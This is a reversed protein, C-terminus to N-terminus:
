CGRGGRTHDPRRGQGGRPRRKQRDMSSWAHPVNNNARAFMGRSEFLAAEFRNSPRRYLDLFGTRRRSRDEHQIIARRLQKELVVADRRWSWVHRINPADLGEAEYEVLLEETEFSTDPLDSICAHLNHLTYESRLTPYSPSELTERWTKLSTEDMEVNCAPALAGLEETIGRWAGDIPSENQLLTESLMRGRKREKGDPWIQLTEILHENSCGPRSVRVTVVNLCRTLQGNADLRLQMEGRQLELWLEVVGKNRGKSWESLDLGHQQLLNAFATMSTVTVPLPPGRRHQSPARADVNGLLPPASNAAKSFGTGASWLSPPRMVVVALPSKHGDDRHFHADESPM